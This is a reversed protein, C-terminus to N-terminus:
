EMMLQVSDIPISFESGCKLLVKRSFSLEIVRNPSREKFILVKDLVISEVRRYRLTVMATYDSIFTVEVAHYTNKALEVVFKDDSIERSLRPLIKFSNDSIQM